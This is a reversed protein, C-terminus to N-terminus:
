DLATPPVYDGHKERAEELRTRQQALVDFVIRPTDAVQTRYLHEIRDLKKLNEPIRLTFQQAFHEPTYDKDLVERFLRKLDQYNPILGTPTSITEVDGNVCLEMWRVWVRKDGIDNLYRGDKGKLFYNVAFIAPPHELGEIFDLHNQIYRGLPLSVFDLNSMPQFARVGEEGLTAATSESELSAGMAIVGHVWDFSREVPVWTDSDRGGYVVGGVPVGEPHNAREDLNTLASMRVTYRANKHAAPIPSGAEDKKGLHWEGSYNIGCEPHTRGDGGWYPKGDAVLINSFIVEGPSTIAKWIIPDDQPNVDRIIGFIGNEVNVAHVRGAYKRLYAIDDGVITEGPIMATSTKGCFSPFAGTFYTVRGHPGHVGMVFMHEALWGERDAKRIALRLSLKKFGVTNGAYQTNVSYVTEDEIDIYIRRKDVDASVGNILRGASHLVRFFDESDDLAEFQDFCCRYLLDSSHAVYFSDTAQMGLVSFASNKPGLCFFCVLMERGTMSGRLYSRVEALGEEKGIANLSSGLEMGPRVLYKTNARDRAQDHYGDFHATHGEMTLTIEEGRALAGRRIYEIDEAANTCVFVSDPTCLEIAEAVFRHLKPSPLRMLKGYNTETLTSRLVQQYREQV